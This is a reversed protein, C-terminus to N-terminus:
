IGCWAMGWSVSSHSVVPRLVTCLKRILWVGGDRVVHGLARAYLDPSNLAEDQRPLSIQCPMGARWLAEESIFSCALEDSRIINVPLQQPIALCPLVVTPDSPHTRDGGTM